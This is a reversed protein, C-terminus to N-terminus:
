RVFALIAAAVAAILALGYEVIRMSHDDTDTPTEGILPQRIM